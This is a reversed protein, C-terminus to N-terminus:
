SMFFFFFSIIYIEQTSTHASGVSDSKFVAQLTKTKVSETRELHRQRYAAFFRSLPFGSMKLVM